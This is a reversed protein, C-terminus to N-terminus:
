ATLPRLCLSTRSGFSRGSRSASNRSRRRRGLDDAQPQESGGIEPGLDCREAMLSVSWLAFRKTSRLAPGDAASGDVEHISESFRRMMATPQKSADFACLSDLAGSEATETWDDNQLVSLDRLRRGLHPGACSPHEPTLRLWRGLYPLPFKATQPAGSKKWCTPLTRSARHEAPKAAADPRCAAQEVVGIKKFEPLQERAM